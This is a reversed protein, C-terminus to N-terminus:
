KTKRPVLKETQNLITEVDKDSLKDKAFAHNHVVKHRHYLVVTLDADPSIAYRKLGEQAPGFEKLTDKTSIVSFVLNDMENEKAFTKLKKGLDSVQARVKGDEGEKPEAIFIVSVGLRHDHYKKALADLKKVLTAFANDGAPPERAFILVAPSLGYHVVLCHFKDARTGTVNFSQVPGPLLQGAQPGSKIEDAAQSTVVLALAGALVGVVGRRMTPEM